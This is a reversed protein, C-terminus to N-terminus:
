RYGPYKGSFLREIDDFVRRILSFEFQPFMLLVITESEKLFDLPDELYPLRQLKFEELTM